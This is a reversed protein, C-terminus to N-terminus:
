RASTLGEPPPPTQRNPASSTRLLKTYCVNYSTIRGLAAPDQDIQLIRAKDPYFARYPFSTGLLLLTDARGMAHYGSAFGILGTMGVDYPNDYELYEKGRLAHVVPAQLREALAVVEDHAGACGAGCLLTVKGGDNLQAALQDLDAEQPLYYAPRPLSWRPSIGEPMPRLAVDGPLVLM